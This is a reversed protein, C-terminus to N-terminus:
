MNDYYIGKKLSENKSLIALIKVEIKRTIKGSTNEENTIPDQLISVFNMRNGGFIDTVLQDGLVAVENRSCDKDRLIKKYNYKCPKCSFSYFDVDIQKAVGQVRKKTNNSLIVPILGADKVKQVFDKAEFDLEATYPPVLTNDVDIALVKIGKNKLKELNLERYNKIYMTPIFYKKIM